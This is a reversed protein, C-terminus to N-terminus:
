TNPLNAVERPLAFLSHHSSLMPFERLGPPVRQLWAIAGAAAATVGSDVAVVGHRAISSHMDAVASPSWRSTSGPAKAPLWAQEGSDLHAAEKDRLLQIASPQV